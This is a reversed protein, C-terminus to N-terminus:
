GRAAPGIKPRPERTFILILQFNVIKPRLRFLAFLGFILGCFSDFYALVQGFMELNEPFFYAGLTPFVVFFYLPHM